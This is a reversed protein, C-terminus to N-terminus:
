NTEITTILEDIRDIRGDDIVFTLRPTYRTKVYETLQTLIDSRKAEVLALIEPNTRLWVRGHQYSPDILVDSVTLEVVHPLERVLIQALAKKYSQNIQELKNQAM